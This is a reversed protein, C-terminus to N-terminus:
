KHSTVQHSTVEQDCGYDIQFIILSYKVNSDCFWVCRKDAWGEKKQTQPIEGTRCNQLVNTESGQPSICTFVLNVLSEALSYIKFPSLCLYFPFQAFRDVSSDLSVIRFGHFSEIGIEGLAQNNLQNQIKHVVWM